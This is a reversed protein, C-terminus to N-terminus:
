AFATARAQLRASAEAYVSRAVVQPLTAAVVIMGTGRVLLLPATGLATAMADATEENWASGRADFAPTGLALFESGYGIARLPAGCAGFCPVSRWSAHVIAGVDPRARYIAAHMAREPGHSRVIGIRHSRAGGWGSSPALSFWDRGERASVSGGGDMAGHSALIRRAAVIEPVAVDARSAAALRQGCVVAGAVGGAAALFRRRTMSRM